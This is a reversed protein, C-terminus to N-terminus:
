PAITIDHVPCVAVTAASGTAAIADRERVMTCEDACTGHECEDDTDCEICWVHGLHHFQVGDEAQHPGEHALDLACRWTRVPFDPVGDALHWRRDCTTM